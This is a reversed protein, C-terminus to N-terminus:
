KLEVTGNAGFKWVNVFDFGTLNTKVTDESVEGSVTLEYDHKLVVEGTVKCSAVQQGIAKSTNNGPYIYSEYTTFVNVFVVETKTGIKGIVSGTSTNNVNSLTGLNLVNTMTVITTGSESGASWEETSPLVIGCIGGNLTSTCTITGSNLCNTM